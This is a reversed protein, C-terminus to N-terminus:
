MSNYMFSALVFLSDFINEGKLLNIIEDLTLWETSSREENATGDGTAEVTKWSFDEQQEELTILFMYSRMMTSKCLPVGQYSTSIISKDLIEIGAEEQLERICASLPTENEETDGIKGSIATYYNHETSYAPCWEYRVAYTCQGISDRKRVFIVAIDPEDLCEYDDTKVLDLWEGKYLVETSM